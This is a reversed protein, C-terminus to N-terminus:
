FARTLHFESAESNVPGIGRTDTTGPLETKGEATLPQSWGEALNKDEPDFRYVWQGNLPLTASASLASLCSMLGFFAFVPILNM